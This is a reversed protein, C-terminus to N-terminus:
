GFLGKKKSPVVVAQLREPDRAHILAEHQSLRGTKVLTALSDDLTNMGEHAGIEIMGLIM